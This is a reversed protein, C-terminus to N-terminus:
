MKELKNLKDLIENQKEVLYNFQYDDELLDLFKHCIELSEKCMKASDAMNEDFQMISFHKNFDDECDRLLKRSEDLLKAKKEEYDDKHNFYYDSYSKM